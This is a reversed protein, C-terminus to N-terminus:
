VTAGRRLKAVWPLIHEKAFTRLANHISTLEADNREITTTWNAEHFQERFLCKSSDFLWLYLQVQVQEYDPVARFLRKQRNKVEAIDRGQVGDPKGGILLRWGSQLALEKYRMTNNRCRIPRQPHDAELGNVIASEKLVGTTKSVAQHLTAPLAAVALSAQEIQAVRERQETLQTRLREMQRQEAHLQEQLARAIAEDNATSPLLESSDVPIAASVTSDSTAAPASASAPASAAPPDVLTAKTTTSAQLKRAADALRQEQEREAALVTALRLPSPPNATSAASSAAPSAASSSAVPEVQLVVPALEKVFKAELEQQLSQAAAEIAERVAGANRISESKDLALQSIMRQQAPADLLQKVAKTARLAPLGFQSEMIKRAIEDPTQFRHRGIAAAVDSCSIYITRGSSSSAMITARLAHV